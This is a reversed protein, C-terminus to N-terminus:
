FLTGPISIYFIFFTPILHPFSLTIFTPNIVFSPASDNELKCSRLKGEIKNEDIIGQKITVILFGIRKGVNDNGWKIGVNKM